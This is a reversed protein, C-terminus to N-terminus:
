GVKLPKLYSLYQTGVRKSLGVKYKDLLGTACCGEGSKVEVPCIRLRIVANEYAGGVFLSIEMHEIGSGNRWFFLMQYRLVCFQQIVVGEALRGENVEFRGFLIGEYAESPTTAGDAFM